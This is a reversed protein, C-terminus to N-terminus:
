LIRLYLAKLDEASVARPNNNMIPHFSGRVLDDLAAEGVGVEGLTTPLGAEVKMKGIADALADMDPLGAAQALAVGRDGMAPGNFRVFHDLTFACASGHPMHYVSSLPYSCAHVAANKPLQFALGGLLAARSMGERAELNSGDALVAPLYQFVLKVAELALLDCIPQHNKSWYGEIAHSLADFGTMATVSRPLTLTLEPDVLAIKPFFNDNALPAKIGKEPDDLVSIPTVESGTGATTPIAILPLHEKGLAKGESHYQRISGDQCAVSCAAKACDLSSGGGLAVVVEAGHERLLAALKDVTGVTPNPEVEAFLVADPGLLQLAEAVMPMERLGADTVLVPRNGFKAAVEPLRKRTGVGFVIETPQKYNWMTNTILPSHYTVRPVLDSM